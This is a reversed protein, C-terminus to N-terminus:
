MSGKTIMAILVGYCLEASRLYDDDVLAGDVEVVAVDSGLNM